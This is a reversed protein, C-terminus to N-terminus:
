RQAGRRAVSVAQLGLWPWGHRPEIWRFFRRLAFPLFELVPCNGEALLITTWAVPQLNHRWMRRHVGAITVFRENAQPTWQGFPAWTDRRYVGLAELLRKLVGAGNGYNPHSVVALGSPKVIRAIEGLARDSDQLHEIVETLLVLDFAADAFPLQEASGLLFTCRDAVNRADLDIGVRQCLPIGFRRGVEGLMWGNGCGVDLIRWRPEPRVREWLWSFLRGGTDSIDGSPTFFPSSLM